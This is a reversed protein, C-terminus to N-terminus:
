RSLVKILEVSLKKKDETENISGEKIIKTLEILKEDAIQEASEEIVTFCEIATLYDSQTFIVALNNLFESYDLGSQWCSAVLMRLTQPKWPKNIETIVENCASQDKIDNMFEEVSKRVSQDETRNYMEALLAIAGEFPPEDRLLRVAEAILLNDKKELIRSLQELKKESRIM